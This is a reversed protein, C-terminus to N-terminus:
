YGKIKLCAQVGESNAVRVASGAEEDTYENWNTSMCDAIAQQKIEAQKIEKWGAVVLACGLVFCVAAILTSINLTMEIKKMIQKREIKTITEKHPSYVPM